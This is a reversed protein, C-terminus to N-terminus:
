HYRFVYRHLSIILRLYEAIHNTLQEVRAIVHTLVIPDKKLQFINFGEIYENVFTQSHM